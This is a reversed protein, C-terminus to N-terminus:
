RRDRELDSEPELEPAVPGTPLTDSPIDSSTDRLLACDMCCDRDDKLFDTFAIGGHFTIQEPRGCIRCTRVTM